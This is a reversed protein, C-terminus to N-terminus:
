ILYIKQTTAVTGRCHPCSICNLVCTQCIVHMCPTLVYMHVYDSVCIPCESYNRGDTSPTAFETRLKLVEANLKRIESDSQKTVRDFNREQEERDKQLRSYKTRLRLTRLHLKNIQKDKDKLEASVRVQFKEYKKEIRM